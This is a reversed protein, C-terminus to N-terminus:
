GEVTDMIDRALENVDSENYEDGTQDLQEAAIEIYEQFTTM